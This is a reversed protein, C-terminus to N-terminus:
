ARHAAVIGGGWVGRQGRARVGAVRRDPAEARQANTRKASEVRAAAASFSARAAALVPPSGAMWPRTGNTPGASRGAGAALERTSKRGLSAFAAV